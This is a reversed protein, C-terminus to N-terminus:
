PLPNSKLRRFGFDVKMRMVEPSEFPLDALCQGHGLINRSCVCLNEDSVVRVVFRLKPRHGAVFDLSFVDCLNSPAPVIQRSWFDFTRNLSEDPM